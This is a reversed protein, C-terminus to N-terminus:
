FDAKNLWFILVLNRKAITERGRNLQDMERVLRDTPLQDLGYIMVLRRGSGALGADDKESSYLFEYFARDSYHFREVQFPETITQLAQQFRTVAPHVPSSEPAIAFITTAGEGLELTQILRLLEEEDQQNLLTLPETADSTM